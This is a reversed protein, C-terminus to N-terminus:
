SAAAEGQSQLSRQLKAPDRSKMLADELTVLKRKVLDTLAQDLTQMGEPRSVEMTVPIEFIKEERIYKRITHSALMIEFAAIRGGDIRPILTQSIVAEIVQSLQVRIQQQQGHPFVDIIRDISQPADVTHLTGLVLHGTEAATMATSITDLDRMEGIVIVDADHRLAHMVAAAFSRTDDGLDRQRILCGKNRFLFEIPDEVTIVNKAANENLHRLMAALTTSKGGGSPGTILIIGRPRLILEKFIQPLGWEDISPVYFPVFRFALSIVGRQRLANVRFRALGPVSYAFDLEWERAFVSRQEETAAQELVLEVDKAAVPPLDKETVLAGDIRLVPPSPVTLHLDSAGRNVMLRLLEDIHMNSKRLWIGQSAKKNVAPKRTLRCYKTESPLSPMWPKLTM